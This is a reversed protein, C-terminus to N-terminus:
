GTVGLRDLAARFASFAGGAKWADMAALGATEDGQSLKYEVWAWRASSPRIDVKGKLGSRLRSLKSELLPIPEFPSGGLPTNKKAVFPAISLSLPLMKSLELSFRICEDIDELNEGPLGVMQYLKMRKMGCGAALKAARILHEETTKRGMMKRMRESVGDAATTLIKYSGESLIKLLDEDLRDARLSSIGIKRGGSVIRGAMEHIGPHDTVAAGVLGVREARDPILSLIREPSVLRMGGSKSRRMVCYGCERSCGREAEILFMSTWLANPTVIQSYAPLCGNDAKVAAPMASSVGPVYFGPMEAFCRLAESRGRVRMEELLTHVLEEGEGVVILDAFPALILPNSYTLPGGAAIIPHTENRQERLVPITSIDLTELLGTLELEYAISFAILPFKGLPTESEYTFVPTRHRRYEGPNDPLFSREASVGPHRNMERYIAQFGLSSMGVKYQDPYCLAVKFPGTDRLVGTEEEVRRRVIARLDWAKRLM